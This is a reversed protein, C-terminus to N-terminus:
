DQVEIIELFGSNSNSYFNCGFRIRIKKDHMAQQSYHKFKERYTEINQAHQLDLWDGTEAICEHNGEIMPGISVMEVLFAEGSNAKLLQKGPMSILKVEAEHVGYGTANAKSTILILILLSILHKM